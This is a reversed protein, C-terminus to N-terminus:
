LALTPGFRHTSLLASLQRSGLRSNRPARPSFARTPVRFRKTRPVASPILVVISLITMPDAWSWAWVTVSTSISGRGRRGAAYRSLSRPRRFNRNATKITSIFRLTPEPDLTSDKSRAKKSLDSVFSATGSGLRKRSRGDYHGGSSTSHQQGSADGKRRFALLALCM